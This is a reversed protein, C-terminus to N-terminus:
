GFVYTFIRPHNLSEPFDGKDDSQHKKHALMSRKRQSWSLYPHHVCILYKLLIVSLCRMPVSWAEPTAQAAVVENGCEWLLV